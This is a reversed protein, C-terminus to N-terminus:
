RRHPGGRRGSATAKWGVRKRRMWRAKRAQYGEARCEDSCYVAPPGIKHIDRFFPGGCMRCREPTPANYIAEELLRTALWAHDLGDTCLSVLKEYTPDSLGVIVAHM